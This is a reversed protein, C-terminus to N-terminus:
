FGEEDSNALIEFEDIFLFIKADKVDRLTELIIPMPTSESYTPENIKRYDVFFRPKEDKKGVIVVPSAYQSTSPTINGEQLM